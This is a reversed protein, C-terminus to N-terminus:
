VTEGGVYRWAITSLQSQRDREPVVLSEKVHWGDVGLMTM